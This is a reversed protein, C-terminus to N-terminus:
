TSLHQNGLHGKHSGLVSALLDVLMAVHVQIVKDRALVCELIFQDDGSVEAHAVVSPLDHAFNFLLDGSQESSSEPRPDLLPYEVRLTSRSHGVVLVLQQAFM